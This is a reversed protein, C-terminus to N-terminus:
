KRVEYIMLCRYREGPGGYITDDQVIEQEVRFGLRKYVGVGPRFACVYIDLGIKAAERMGSAVLETGIGKGQNNPHVAM